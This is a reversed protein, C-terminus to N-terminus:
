DRVSSPNRRSFEELLKKSEEDIQKPVVIKVLVYQDGKERTKEGVHPAGKGQLRFKQGSSTGPPIKLKVNNDLTPVEITAGLVAETISIPREIYIDDGERWFDSHPKINLTIYLDGTKGRANTEGKNALRIKSGNRVGAPIKVSLSERQGNRMVAIKAPAGKVAQIFDIEMSYFLDKSAEEAFPAEARRPQARGQFGGGFIDGFIEGFDFGFDRGLDGVDEFPQEGNHNWKWTTQGRRRPDFGAQQWQAGLMDYKRRKEPDSLVDYAQSVEKFREEAQKDGKNVDPHHTKALRRFAKKIEDPSAQRGVGLIEYLDRPM